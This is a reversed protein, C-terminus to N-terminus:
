DSILEVYTVPSNKDDENITIVENLDNFIKINDGFIMILYYSSENILVKHKYAKLIEVNKIQEIYEKLTPYKIKNEFRRIVKIESIKCKSKDYFEIENNFIDLFIIKDDKLSCYYNDYNNRENKLNLGLCLKKNKLDLLLEKFENSIFIEEFSIDRYYFIRDDKKFYDDVRINIFKDSKIFSDKNENLYRNITYQSSVDLQDDDKYYRM